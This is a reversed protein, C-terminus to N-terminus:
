RWGAGGRPTVKELFRLAVAVDIEEVELLSKHVRLKWAPEDDWLVLIVTELPACGPDTCALESISIVPDGPPISALTWARIAKLAAAHDLGRTRALPHPTTM